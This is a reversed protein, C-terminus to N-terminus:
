QNNSNLNDLCLTMPDEGTIPDVPSNALYDCPGPGPHTIDHILPIVFMFIVWLVVLAPIIWWLYKEAIKYIKDSNPLKSFLYLLPFGVITGVILVQWINRNFFDPFDLVNM